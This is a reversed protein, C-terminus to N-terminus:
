GEKQQAKEQEPKPQPSEPTSVIEPNAAFRLSMRHEAPNLDIIQFNYTEGVLLEEEMKKKTGFESIHALGQIKPEIEVFAGYPNMKTVKGKIFDLKKYKEGINKWPDEKLAKLSLSVRGNSIDIIKAAIKDGAALFKSPDEIIQWDIESIHILGEIEEGEKGFSVFAGFDVVGTITGEVVDGVQYNQLLEKVKLREKARESLIIKNEKPDIDFIQVQLETGTFKQLEHLIKEPDGGEVKPYHEPALQSVPLFAAIGYLESLLGGKNASLIKVPIIEESEKKERLREWNIQRGAEKLSLEVYGEENEIDVVKATIKEGIKVNKLTSKEELFEKGYVIGTGQPALDVYIASRGIAIVPAEVIDGIKYPRQIEIRQIFQPKAM